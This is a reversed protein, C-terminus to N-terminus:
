IIQLVENMSGGNLDPTVAITKYGTQNSYTCVWKRLRRSIDPGQQFNLTSLSAIAKNFADQPNAATINGVIFSWSNHTDYRNQMMGTVWKGDPGQIIVEENLGAAQIAAAIPCKDPKAPFAIANATFILLIAPYLKNKMM